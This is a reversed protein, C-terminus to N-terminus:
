GVVYVAATTGSLVCTKTARCRVDPTPDRATSWHSDPGFPRCDAACRDLTVDAARCQAIRGSPRPGPTVGVCGRRWSAATVPSSSSRARQTALATDFQALPEATILAFWPGLADDLRCGRPLVPNPCLTGVLDRLGLLGTRQVMPSPRPAPTTSDVFRERLGPVVQLRAVIARRALNGLEGGATMAKGVRLALRILGRAHPKREQEYSDLLSPAFSGNLVVLEDRRASGTRHVTSHPPGRRWCYCRATKGATPSRLGSPVGRLPDRHHRRVSSARDMAGTAADVDEALRVPRCVRRGVASIGMSLPYRGGASLHAGPAPRVGSPGLAVGRFHSREGPRVMVCPTGSDIGRLHIEDHSRAATQFGFAQAFAEARMLDPREFRLWAIDHVKILPNRSRGLHEGRLVGLESHLGEQAGLTDSM